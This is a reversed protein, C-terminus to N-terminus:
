TLTVRKDANAKTHNKIKELFDQGDVTRFGEWMNREVQRMTKPRIRLEKTLKSNIKMSCLLYLREVIAINSNMEFTQILGPISIM